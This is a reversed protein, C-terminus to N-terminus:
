EKYYWYCGKYSKKRGKLVSLICSQVARYNHGEKVFFRSADAISPFEYKIKKTKKDFGQVAKACPNKSGLISNGLVERSHKNNGYVTTWEFNSVKNNLKNGDLHNVVPLNNPNPVFTLAIIRHVQFTKTKGNICFVVYKYGHSNINSKLPKGNKGYVVGETDCQYIEYGIINVQKRQYEM